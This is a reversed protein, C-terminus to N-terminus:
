VQSTARWRRLEMWRRSLKLQDVQQLFEPHELLGGGTQVTVAAIHQQVAFPEIQYKLIFATASEVLRYQEPVLQPNLKGGTSDHLTGALKGVLQQDFLRASQEESLVIMAHQRRDAMVNEGFERPAGFRDIYRWQVVPGKLQQVQKLSLVRELAALVRTDAYRLYYHDGAQMGLNRQSEFHATLDIRNAETALISMGYRWPLDLLGDAIIHKDMVARELLWPGVAAAERSSLDAYLSVAESLQFLAQFQPHEGMIAADMLAFENM